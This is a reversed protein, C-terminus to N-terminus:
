KILNLEAVIQPTQVYQSGSRDQISIVEKAVEFVDEWVPNRTELAFDLGNLFNKTFFGGEISNGWAFETPSSGSGFVHGRYDRFLKIYAQNPGDSLGANRTGGSTPLELVNNCSDSLALLLRPQKALLQNQVDTFDVSDEITEGVALYPWRDTKEPTRFGHGTYYFIVTDDPGTKLTSLSQLLKTRNLDLGEIVVLNQEMGAKEAIIEIKERFKGLDVEASTGVTPDLTDAVLVAHLTPRSGVPASITPSSSFLPPRSPVPKVSTNAEKPSPKSVATNANVSSEAPDTGVKSATTNGPAPPNQPCGAVGLLLAVLLLRTLQLPLNLRM